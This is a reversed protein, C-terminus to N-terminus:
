TEDAIIIGAATSLSRAAGGREKRRVPRLGGKDILYAAKEPGQHLLEWALLAPLQSWPLRSWSKPVGLEAHLFDVAESKSRFNTSNEGFASACDIIPQVVDQWNGTVVTRGETMADAVQSLSVAPYSRLLLKLERVVQSPDNSKSM